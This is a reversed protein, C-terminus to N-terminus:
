VITITPNVYAGAAADYYLLAAGTRNSVGFGLYQLAIADALPFSERSRVIADRGRRGDYRWALPNRSDFQGYTKVLAANKDGFGTVGKRIRVRGGYVGIYKDADVVAESTGSGVRVLSSGAMVVPKGATNAAAILTTIFADSAILDFEGDNWRGMQTIAADLWTIIGATSTTYSYHTYGGAIVSGDPYIGSFVNSGTGSGAFGPSLSTTNKNDVAIEANSFLRDLVAALYYRKFGDVMDDLEQRFSDLTIDNLGDETFGLVMDIKHIPLMTAVRDSTQPRSYTYEGARQVIKTSTGRTKGAAGSTPFVLDAILPNLGTNVAQMAADVEQIMQAVSLGSATELTRLYNEDLGAPLDVYSTDIYGFAM